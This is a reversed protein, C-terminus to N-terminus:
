HAGGAQNLGLQARNAMKPKISSERGSTFRMGLVPCTILNNTSEFHIKFTQVNCQIGEKKVIKWFNNDDLFSALITPKLFVNRYFLYIQFLFCILRGHGLSVKEQSYIVM